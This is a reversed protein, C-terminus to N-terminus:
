HSSLSNSVLSSQNGVPEPTLPAQDLAGITPVPKVEGIITRVEEEFIVLFEMFGGMTSCASFGNHPGAARIRGVLRNDCYIPM